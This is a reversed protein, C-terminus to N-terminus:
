QTKRAKSSANDKFSFSSFWKRRRPLRWKRVEHGGFEHRLAAVLKAAFSKQIKEDSESQKRFALSEEIIKIPVDHKKAEEITWVTEGSASGITGAIDSLNSDKDLADVTRDLMFGSVLTGKQWLKAIKQLDFGYEANKLVGFGEGLSQMYGYEIANHVMKVYHGAGGIGFYDHGGHPKSLSDLIPRIHEYASKDGGVMFPYGTKAAVVGGSVGIGLFRVGKAKLKVFWKDTDTFHSNGGDIVIDDAGVFKSVDELITNTADWAPLMLWVIRPKELSEILSSISYSLALKSDLKQEQMLAQFQELVDKSRNWVVVQHGDKLLKEVMRSGMKGVGIFGLKM